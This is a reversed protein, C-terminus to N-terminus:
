DREKAPPKTFFSEFIRARVAEAMGSGTDGLSLRVAPEKRSEGDAGSAGVYESLVVEVTITGLQDGVSPSFTERTVAFIRYNEDSWIFAGTRFDIETSGTGAIRQALALHQESTHLRAEINGSEAEASSGDIIYGLSHRVPHRLALRLTVLSSALAVGLAVASSV